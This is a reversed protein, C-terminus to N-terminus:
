ASKAAPSPAGVTAVETEVAETVDGAETTDGVGTVDMSGTGEVVEVAAEATTLDEGATPADAEGM